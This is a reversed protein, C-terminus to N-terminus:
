ETVAKIFKVTTSSDLLLAELILTDEPWWFYTAELNGEEVNMNELLQTIYESSVNSEIINSDSDVINYLYEVVTNESEENIPPQNAM